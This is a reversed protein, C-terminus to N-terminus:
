FDGSPKKKGTTAGRPKLEPEGQEAEFEPTEQQFGEEQEFGFKDAGPGSGQRLEIVQFAELGLKVGTGIKASYTFHPMWAFSIKLTSGGGVRVDAGLPKGMADFGRPPSMAKKEKTVSNRKFHFTVTGAEEDVVYPPDCRKIASPKVSKQKAFFAVREEVHEEIREVVARTEENLPYEVKTHWPGDDEFKTDPAHLHPWVATGRTKITCKEFKPSDSM